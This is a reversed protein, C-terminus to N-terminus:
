LGVKVWASTIINHGTKRLDSALQAKMKIIARRYVKNFIEGGKCADAIRGDLQGAQGVYAQRSLTCSLTLSSRDGM